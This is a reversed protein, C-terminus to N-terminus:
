AMHNNRRIFWELAALILILPLLILSDRLKIRKTELVKEVILDQTKIKSISFDDPSAFFQGKTLSSLLKLTEPLPENKQHELASGGLFLNRVTKPQGKGAQLELKYYGPEPLNLSIAAKGDKSTTFPVVESSSETDTDKEKGNVPRITLSGGKQKWPMYDRNRLTLEAQVQLPQERPASAQLQTPNLSPDGSAWKLVQRWFTDYEASTEGKSMSERRWIWSSSTNLFVTRGKGTYRTALLPDGGQTKLLLAADPHVSQTDMYGFIRPVDAGFAALMPHFRGAKTSVAKQYEMHYPTRYTKPLIPLIDGLSTLALSPGSATRPGGIVILGGSQEIVFTKIKQMLKRAQYSNRFYNGADFDQFVVVDFSFLQRDFIEEVPFQVLAMEDPPIMRGDSGIQLHEQTRLIYFATFEIFPDNEFMSRLGQLDPTVSGAIHLVNIKDRGTEVLLNSTNNSTNTEDPHHPVAVQYLHEGVRDPYVEFTVRGFGHEDLVPTHFQIIKQDELLQIQPDAEPLNRAFITVDIKLPTRIYSFSPAEVSHILLDPENEISGIYISHIPPLGHMATWSELEVASMRSLPSFDHGDSILVIQALDPEKSVLQSLATSFDTSSSTVQLPVGQMLQNDFSYLTTKLDSQRIDELIEMSLDSRSVGDRGSALASMSGSHDVLVATKQPELEVVQSILTAEHLILWGTSLIIFRLISTSIQVWRPQFRSVFIGYIWLALCAILVLAELVTSDLPNLSLTM